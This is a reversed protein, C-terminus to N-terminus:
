SAVNENRPPPNEWVSSLVGTLRTSARLTVLMSSSVMNVRWPLSHDDNALPILVFMLPSQPEEGVSM